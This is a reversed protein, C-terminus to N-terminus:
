GEKVPRIMDDMRDEGAEAAREIYHFYVDYTMKISAHGLLRSVEHIPEGRLIRLTACTHRLDHFRIHRLGAAQLIKKHRYDLTDPSLPASRPRNKRGAHTIFVFDEGKWDAEGIALKKKLHDAYQQRFHPILSRPINLTRSSTKNKTGRVTLKRADLDVDSWRLALLESEKRLGLIAAVNFALAHPDGEAVALYRNLEEESLPDIQYRTVKPLRIRHAPSETVLGWDIATAFSSQVVNYINRITRPAYPAGEPTTQDSIHNVFRQIDARTILQIKKKSLDHKKLHNKVTARYNVVTNHPYHPPRVVEKVWVDLFDGYTQETEKKSLREVGEVLADLVAEAEEYTAETGHARKGDKMLSWNWRGDPRQWLSGTGHARRAKPKPKRAAM